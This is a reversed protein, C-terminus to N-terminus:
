EIKVKSKEYGTVKIEPPLVIDKTKDVEIWYNGKNDKNLWVKTKDPAILLKGWKEHIQTGEEELLFNRIQFLMKEDKESLPKFELRLCCKAHELDKSLLPVKLSLRPKGNKVRIRCRGSKDYVDIIHTDWKKPEFPECKLRTEHELEFEYLLGEQPASIIETKFKGKELLPKIKEELKQFLEPSLREKEEEEAKRALEMLEEEPIPERM